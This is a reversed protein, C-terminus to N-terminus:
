RKEAPIVAFKNKGQKGFLLEKIEYVTNKEIWINEPFCPILEENELEQYVNVTKDEGTRNLITIYFVSEIPLLDPNDYLDLTEVDTFLLCILEEENGREVGGISRRKGSNENMAEFISKRQNVIDEVSVTKPNAYSYIFNKSDIIEISSKEPLRIQYSAKLEDKKKLPTWTTGDISTEVTGTVKFVSYQAQLDAICYLLIATYILINVKKKM